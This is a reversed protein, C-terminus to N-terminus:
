SSGTPRFLLTAEAAHAARGSALGAVTALAAGAGLFSRRDM